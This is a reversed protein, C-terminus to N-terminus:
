LVNDIFRLTEIEGFCDVGPACCCGTIVEKEEVIVRSHGFCIRYRLQKLDPLNIADSNSACLERIRIRAELVYAHHQQRTPWGMCPNALGILLGAVETRRKGWAIVCRYGSSCEQHTGTHEILNLAKIHSKGLIVVIDIEAQAYAFGAIAHGPGRIGVENVVFTRRHSALLGVLLFM